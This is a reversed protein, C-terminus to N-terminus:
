RLVYTSRKWRGRPTAKITHVLEIHISISRLEEAVALAATESPLGYCTLIYGDARQANIYWTDIYHAM